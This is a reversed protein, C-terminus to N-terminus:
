GPWQSGTKADTLPAQQAWLAAEQEAAGVGYVETFAARRSVEGRVYRALQWHVDAPLVHGDFQLMLLANEVERVRRAREPDTTPVPNQTLWPSTSHDDM